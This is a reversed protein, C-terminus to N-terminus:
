DILTRLAHPWKRELIAMGGLTTDTETFSGSISFRRVNKWREVRYSGSYLFYKLRTHMLRRHFKLLFTRILVALSTNLKTHATLM